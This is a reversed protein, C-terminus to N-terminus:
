SQPTGCDAFFRYTTTGDADPEPVAHVIDPSRASGEVVNIPVDVVDHVVTQKGDTQYTYDHPESPAGRPVLKRDPNKARHFFTVCTARGYRDTVEIAVRANLFQENGTRFAQDLRAIFERVDESPVAPPNPNTAPTVPSVTTHTSSGWGAAAGAIGVICLVVGVVIALTAGIRGSRDPV